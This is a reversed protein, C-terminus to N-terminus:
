LGRWGSLDPNPTEGGVFRLVAGSVGLYAERDLMIDESDPLDPFYQEAYFDLALWNIPEHETPTVTGGIATVYTQGVTNISNNEHDVTRTGQSQDALYQTLCFLVVDSIGKQHSRFYHEPYVLEVAQEVNNAM